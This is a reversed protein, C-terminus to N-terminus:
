TRHDVAMYQFRTDQGNWIWEWLIRALRYSTQCFNPPFFYTRRVKNIILFLHARWFFLFIIAKECIPPCSKETWYRETPKETLYNKTPTKRLQSIFNRTSTYMFIKQQIIMVAVTLEAGWLHGYEHATSEM